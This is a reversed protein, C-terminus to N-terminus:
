LIGMRKEEEYVRERLLNKILTQYNASKKDALRRIREDLDFDLRLSILKTTTKSRGNRTQALQQLVNADTNAPYDVALSHQGWFEAEEAENEFAPIESPDHIEKM